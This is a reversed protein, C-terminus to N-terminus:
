LSYRSFFKLIMPTANFSAPSHGDRQNDSNATTSPWDHGISADFVQEVLGQDAGAGFSFLVTDSTISSTTNTTSLGDRAAWQQIYDPISPLCAGKRSKEGNYAITTDDGGHFELFPIKPRGANCTIKVTNPNCSSVDLDYFAGSVPAFAAIRQSLANNCALVGCM